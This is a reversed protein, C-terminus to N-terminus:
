FITYKVKGLNDEVNDGFIYLYLMNGFIHAIGGHLFMSTIVNTMPQRGALFEAPILSYHDIFATGGSLELLFVIVNLIILVTTVVPYSVRQTNDDGIPLLM